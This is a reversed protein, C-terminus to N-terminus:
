EWMSYRIEGITFLNAGSESVVEVNYNVRTGRERPLRISLVTDPLGSSELKRQIYYPETDNGYFLEYREWVEFKKKKTNKIYLGIALGNVNEEVKFPKNIPMPKVFVTDMLEDERKVKIIQSIELQYYVEVGEKFNKDSGGYQFNEHITTCGVFLVMLIPLLKRFM